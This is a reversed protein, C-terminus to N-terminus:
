ESTLLTSEVTVIPPPPHNKGRAASSRQFKKVRVVDYRLVNLIKVFEFRPLANQPWNKLKTKKKLEILKVPGYAATIRYVRSCYM